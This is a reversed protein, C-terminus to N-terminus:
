SFWLLVAFVVLAWTVVRQLWRNGMLVSLRVGALGGALSGAALALGAGWRVHDSWTFVALSVLTVALISAVKIANGRVLDMGALTTVGLVLFGVGAQVFGGYLGVALFGLVVSPSWPPRPARPHVKQLPDLLTWLTAAVMILALVRRFEREELGLSLWAGAVAALSAPLSTALAWPWDLVRRRQFGWVAGLNQAVVGLRNTGNADAAPLGLFILVPLTLFSGGGALVNLVSAIFGVAALLLYAGASM